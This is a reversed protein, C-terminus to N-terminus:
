AFVLSKYPGVFPKLNVWIVSGIDSITFNSTNTYRTGISSGTAVEKPVMVL